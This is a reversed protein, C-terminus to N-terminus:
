IFWDAKLGKVSFNACTLWGKDTSYNLAKDSFNGTISLLILGSAIMLDFFTYQNVALAVKALQAAPMTKGEGSAYNMM